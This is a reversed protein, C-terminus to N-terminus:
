QDIDIRLSQGTPRISSVSHSRPPAPKKYLFKPWASIGLDFIKALASIGTFVDPFSCLPM